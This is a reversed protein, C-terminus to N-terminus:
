FVHANAAPESSTGEYRHNPRPYHFVSVGHEQCFYVGATVPGGPDPGLGAPGAPNIRPDFCMECRELDLCPGFGLGGVLQQFERARHRQVNQMAADAALLAGAAVSLIVVTALLVQASKAHM